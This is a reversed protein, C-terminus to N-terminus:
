MKNINTYKKVTLYFNLMQKKKLAVLVLDEHGKGTRDQRTRDQGLCYVTEMLRLNAFGNLGSLFKPEFGLILRQTNNLNWDVSLGCTLAVSNIHLPPHVGSDSASLWHTRDIMVYKLTPCFNLSQAHRGSHCGASFGSM